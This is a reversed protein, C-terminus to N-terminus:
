RKQYCNQNCGSDLNLKVCLPKTIKSWLCRLFCRARSKQLLASDPLVLSQQLCNLPSSNKCLLLLLAFAHAIQTCFKQWAKSQNWFTVSSLIANYIVSVLLPSPFDLYREKLRMKGQCRSTGNHNDM